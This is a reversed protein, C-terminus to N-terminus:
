QWLGTSLDYSNGRHSYDPDRKSSEKICWILKNGNAHITAPDCRGDGDFDAQAPVGNGAATGFTMWSFAGSASYLFYWINGANYYVAYDAKGDGDYDAPVPTVAYWGFNFKWALVQDSLTTVYWDGASQHYVALDTVGDGNFDAPYPYAESWGWPKAFFWGTNTLVYWVGGEAHYVALDTAGDGDYDGPVPTAAYWGCARLYMAGAATWVYWMGEAQHYVALDMRGDGDYDWPLPATQAWGFDSAVPLNNLSYRVRWTGTPPYYFWLDAKGDSDFDTWTAKIMSAHSFASYATNTLPPAYTRNVCTVSIRLFKGIDGPQVVYTTSTAGPIDNINIGSLSDATQWQYTFEMANTPTWFGKHATFTQGIYPLGSITPIEHNAPKRSTVTLVVPLTLPSHLARDGTNPDFAHITVKGTRTGAPLGATNFNLEIVDVNGTTIGSSPSPSLWASDSAIEYSMPGPPAKAANWISFSQKSPPEDQLVSHEVRSVSCTLAAAATVKLAVAVQRTMYGAGSAPDDSEVTIIGHHTGQVLNTTNFRVELESAAGYQEGNTPWVSFWASDDSVSYRMLGKPEESENWLHIVRSAANRGEACYNILSYTDLACEPLTSVVMLVETELPTNTAYGSAAITVKGTHVGRGLQDTTFRVSISQLNGTSTGVAPDVDLWDGEVSLSFNMPVRPEPSNNWVFLTKPPANYSFTVFNSIAAPDRALGPRAKVIATVAIHQPSNTVVYEPFDSSSAHVTLTATHIGAGLLAATHFINTVTIHNGYSVEGTPSCALWPASSTISFVMGFVPYSPDAANWVEFVKQSADIGQATTSELNTVGLMLTPEPCVNLLVPLIAPSNSAPNGKSDTGVVTVRGSYSGIGLGLANFFNTITASSEPAIEGSSPSCWFWGYDTSNTFRLTRGYSETNHIVFTKPTAKQSFMAKHEFADPVLTITPPRLTKSAQPTNGYCGMNVRGGNPEPENRYDTSPDGADICPSNAEDEVWNGADWRGQQSQLHFNGTFYNVFQPDNTICGDYLAEKYDRIDSYYLRTSTVGLNTLSVGSEWLISNRIEVTCGSEQKVRFGEITHRVFTCNLSWNTGKALYVSQGQAGIAASDNYDFLTNVFQVHGNTQYVGSGYSENLSGLMFNRSVECNTLTVFSSNAYLGGGYCNNTNAIILCGSLLSDTCGTLCVGGGYNEVIETDYVKVQSNGAYLGGGYQETDASSPSVNTLSNARIVCGSIAVVSNSIALGAGCKSVENSVITTSFINVNTSDLIFIGAGAMTTTKTLRGGSIIVRGITADVAGTMFFVRGDGYNHIESPWNTGYNGPYGIGEYGGLLTINNTKWELPAVEGDINHIQDLGGRLYITSNNTAKFLANSLTRYPDDWSLGGAEDSGNVDVYIERAGAAGAGLCFAAIVFLRSLSTKMM